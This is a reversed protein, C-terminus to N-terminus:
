YFQVVKTLTGVAGNGAADTLTQEPVFTASSPQDVGLSNCVSGDCSGAITSVITRNGNTLTLTADQYTANQGTAVIGSEGLDIASEALGVITLTDTPFVDLEKVNAAHVTSALIPESFAVSVTDTLQMVGVTTGHNASTM